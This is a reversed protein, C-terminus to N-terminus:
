ENDISTASADSRVSDSSFDIPDVRNAFALVAEVEEKTFLVQGNRHRHGSPIQGGQRWRWLTQRCVRVQKALSTATVYISGNIEIKQM